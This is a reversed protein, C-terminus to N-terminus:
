EYSLACIPKFLDPCCPDQAQKYICSNPCSEPCPPKLNTAQCPAFCNVSMNRKPFKHDGPCKPEHAKPCTVNPYICTDKCRKPCPVVMDICMINDDALVCFFAIPLLLCAFKM